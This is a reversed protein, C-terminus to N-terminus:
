GREIIKASCTDNDKNRCHRKDRKEINMSSGYYTENTINCKFQYIGKSM